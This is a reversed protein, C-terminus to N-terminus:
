SAKAPAPAPAAAAAAPAPATKKGKLSTKKREFYAKRRKKKLVKNYQRGM